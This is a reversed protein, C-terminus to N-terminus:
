EQGSQYVFTEEHLVRGQADVVQVKWAGAWAPTMRKSSWVRWRPGSIKFPIEAKVEDGFLWRHRVTQGELGVLETFFFIKKLDTTNSNLNDVPERGTVASTLVARKVQPSPVARTTDPRGPPAAPPPAGETRGDKPLYVFGDEQLVRGRADVVQVRWPGTREPTLRKSSWVRWRPGQVAFPIEAVVRDRYHWRHRVTDGQLNRLETFYFIRTVDTFLTDLREVPEREVIQRTFASRAVYASDGAPWGPASSEAWLLCAPLLLAVTTVWWVLNVASGQASDFPKYPKVEVELLEHAEGLNM